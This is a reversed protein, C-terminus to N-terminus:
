KSLVVEMRTGGEKRKGLQFTGSLERVRERLGAIGLHGEQILTEDPPIEAWPLGEGDDEIVFRFADPEERISLQLRPAKAHKLANRLGEQLIRYLHLLSEEDLLKELRVRRTEDELWHAELTIETEPHQVRMKDVFKELAPILGLAYLAEPRLDRSIQRVSKLAESLDKGITKLLERAADPDTEIQKQALQLQFGLSTLQQAIDDHLERSINLRVSEIHEDLSHLIRSLNQNAGALRQRTQIMWPVWQRLGYAIIVFGMSFGLIKEAFAMQWSRELAIGLSNVFALSDPDDLIDILSGMFLLGCGWVIKNWGFQKMEPYEYRTILSGILMALTACSFFVEFLLSESGLLFDIWALLAFLVMLILFIWFDKRWEFGNLFKRNGNM